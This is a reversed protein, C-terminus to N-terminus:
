IGKIAQSRINVTCYLGSESFIDVVNGNHESVCGRFRGSLEPLNKKLIEIATRIKMNNTM